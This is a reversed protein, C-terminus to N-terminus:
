CYFHHKNYYDSKEGNATVLDEFVRSFTSPAQWRHPSKPGSSLEDTPLRLFILKRFIHYHIFAGPAQIM